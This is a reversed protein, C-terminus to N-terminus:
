RGSHHMREAVDKAHRIAAEVTGMEPGAYLAEGAFYLTDELPVHLVQLAQETKLTKYAYAGLTYPDACWNFVEIHEIVAEVEAHTMELIYGLSSIALHRLTDDDAYRLQAAPPGGLWGTLLPDTAPYQTWWTPIPADSFIFGLENLSQGLRKRVATDKWFDPKLLVLVKIVHGFGMSQVAALHAEPEPHFTLSAPGEKDMLVGLPVTVVVQRAHYNKGDADTVKVKGASWHIEKVTTSLLIEAQSGRLEFLIADLLAGYGGEPRYQDGEPENLEDRFAYASARAADAADYGEVYKRIHDKFVAYPEDPFYRDLFTTVAMDEKLESLHEMLKDRHEVFDDQEQVQGHEVRCMEGGIPECPIDYERLMELTAPLDGHVFEAGGELTLGSKSFTHIRGGIRLRGEVVLVSQGARCLQRAITLGSIGAGIIIVDAKEM